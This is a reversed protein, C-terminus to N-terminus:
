KCVSAIAALKGCAILYVAVDWVELDDYIDEENEWAEQAATPVFGKVLRSMTFCRHRSPETKLGGKICLWDYMLELFAVLVAVWKHFDFTSNFATVTCSKDSM